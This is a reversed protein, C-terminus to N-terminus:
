ARSSFVGWKKGKTVNENIFRIESFQYFIYYGVFTIIFYVINLNLYKMILFIIAALLLFRVFMGGFVVWMFTKLSRKLSWCISLFGLAFTFLSGLYGFIIEFLYNEKQLCYLVVLILILVIGSIIFFKLFDKIM